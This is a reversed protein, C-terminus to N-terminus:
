ADGGKAMQQAVLSDIQAFHDENYALCEYAHAHTLGHLQCFLRHLLQSM